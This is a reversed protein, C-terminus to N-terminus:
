LLHGRHRLPRRKRLAEPWVPLALAPLEGGPLAAGRRHGRLLGARGRLLHEARLLARQRRTRLSSVQAYGPRACGEQRGPPLEPHLLRLDSGTPWAPLLCSQPLGHRQHETRSGGDTITEGAWVSRKIGPWQWPPAWDLSPSQM